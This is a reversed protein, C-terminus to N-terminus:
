HEGELFAWALCREFDGLMMLGEPSEAPAATDLLAACWPEPPPRRPDTVYPLRWEDAYRHLERWASAGCKSHAAVSMMVIPESPRRVISVTLCRGAKSVGTLSWGTRPIPVLKTPDGDLQAVLERCLVLAADSVEDAYSRRSHGTTLTVHELWRAVIM